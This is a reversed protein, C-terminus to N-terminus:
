NMGAPRIISPQPAQTPPYRKKIAETVIGALHTRTRISATLDQSQTVSSLVGGMASAIAEWMVSQPVLPNTVVLGVALARLPKELAEALQQPTVPEVPARNAKEEAM